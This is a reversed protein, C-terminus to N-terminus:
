PLQSPSQAIRTAETYLKQALEGLPLMQGNVKVEDGTRLLHYFLEPAENKIRDLQNACIDALLAEALSEVFGKSPNETIFLRTGDFFRLEWKSSLFSKRVVEIYWGQTITPM